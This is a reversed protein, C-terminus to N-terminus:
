FTVPKFGTPTVLFASVIENYTSKDKHTNLTSFRAKLFFFIYFSIIFM